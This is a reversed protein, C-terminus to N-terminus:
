NDSEYDQVYREINQILIETDNIQELQNLFEPTFEDCDSIDFWMNGAIDSHEECWKNLLKKQKVTLDRM